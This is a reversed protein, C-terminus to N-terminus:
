LWKTLGDVHVTFAAGHIANMITRQWALSILADDWVSCSVLM